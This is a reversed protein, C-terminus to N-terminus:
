TTIICGLQANYLAAGTPHRTLQTAIPPMQRMHAQDIHIIENCNGLDPPAVCCVCHMFADAGLVVGNISCFVLAHVHSAYLSILLASVRVCGWSAVILCVGMWLWAQLISLDKTHPLHYVTQWAIFVHMADALLPASLTPRLM